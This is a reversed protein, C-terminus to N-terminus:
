SRFCAENGRVHLVFEDISKKDKMDILQLGLSTIREYATEWEDMRDADLLKLEEEFLPRIEDFSSTPEFKCNVWPFDTDYSRFVGLLERGRKLELEM